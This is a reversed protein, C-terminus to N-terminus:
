DIVELGELYRALDCEYVGGEMCTQGRMWKSFRNYERKGMSDEIQKWPIVATFNRMTLPTGGGLRNKIIRKM